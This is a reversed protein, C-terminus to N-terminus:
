FQYIKSNEPAMNIKYGGIIWFRNMKGSKRYINIKFNIFRLSGIPPYPNHLHHDTRVFGAFFRSVFDIAPCRSYEFNFGIRCYWLVIPLMKKPYCGQVEHDTM